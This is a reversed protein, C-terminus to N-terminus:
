VHYFIKSKFILPYFLSTQPTKLSLFHQECAWKICTHSTCVDEQSGWKMCTHSTCGGEQSGRKMCTYTCGGEQSGRKMCTIWGRTLGMEYMHTIHMWGRTLGTEYMHTIHMIPEVIQPHINNNLMKRTQFCECVVVNIPARSTM